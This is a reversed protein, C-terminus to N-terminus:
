HGAKGRLPSLVYRLGDDLSIRFFGESAYDVSWREDLSRGHPRLEVGPYNFPVDREPTLAFLAAACLERTERDRAREEGKKWTEENLQQQGLLNGSTDMLACLVGHRQKKIDLRLEEHERGQDRQVHLQQPFKIHPLQAPVPAHVACASLFLACALVIVRIM